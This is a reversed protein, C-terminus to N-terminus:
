RKIKAFNPAYPMRSDYFFILSGEHIEIEVYEKEAINRAGEREGLGLWNDRLEWHLNKTSVRAKPQPILSLIEHKRCEFGFSDFMPLGCRGKDFIVLKMKRAYRMLVSWNNLTHEIIGGHFGLIILSKYGKDLAFRLIKEFDNSEQDPEHIVREGPFQKALSSRYFSDLDGIVFDATIGIKMLRIGAGDAAFVPLGRLRDFFDSGPM